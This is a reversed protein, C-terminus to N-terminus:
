KVSLISQILSTFGKAIILVALGLSAYKLADLGAQYNKPIGGSTLMRFGGYVIIIVAIPIAINFIFNAIIGVLEGISKPNGVLPNEYNFKFDLAIQNTRENKIQASVTEPRPIVFAYIWCIALFMILFNIIKMM